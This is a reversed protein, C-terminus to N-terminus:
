QHLMDIANGTKQLEERLEEPSVVKAQGAFGLIWGHLEPDWISWQPL